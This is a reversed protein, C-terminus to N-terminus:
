WRTKKEKGKEKEKAYWIHVRPLQNIRIQEFFESKSLELKMNYYGETGFYHLNVDNIKPRLSYSM